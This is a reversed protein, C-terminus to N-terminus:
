VHAVLLEAVAVRALVFLLLCALVVVALGAYGLRHVGMLFPGGNGLADSVGSRQSWRALAALANIHPAACACGATPNMEKAGGRGRTAGAMLERHSAIAAGAADKLEDRGTSGAQKADNAFIVQQLLSALQDEAQRAATIDAGILVDRPLPARMAAGIDDTRGVAIELLEALGELRPAFRLRMANFLFSATATAQGSSALTWHLSAPALEHEHECPRTAHAHNWRWPIYLMSGARMEFDRKTLKGLHRQEASRDCDDAFCQHHRESEFPYEVHEAPPGDWVTWVRCGQLQLIIVEQPDAHACISVGSPPHRYANISFPAGLHEALADTATKACPLALEVVNLIETWGESSAREAPVGGLVEDYHARAVRGTGAADPASFLATSAAALAAAARAQGASATGRHSLEQQWRLAVFDEDLPLVRRLAETMPCACLQACQGWRGPGLVGATIGAAIAAGSAAAAIALFKALWADM